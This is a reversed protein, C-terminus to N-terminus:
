KEHTAEINPSVLHRAKLRVSRVDSSQLALVAKRLRDCRGLRRGAVSLAAVIRLEGLANSHELLGALSDDDLREYESELQERKRRAWDGFRRLCDALIHVGILILVCVSVTRLTFPLLDSSAVFIM